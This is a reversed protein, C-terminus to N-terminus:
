QFPPIISDFSNFRDHIPRETKMGGMMEDNWCEM